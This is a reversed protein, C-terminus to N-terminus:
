DFNTLSFDRARISTCKNIQTMIEVNDQKANKDIYKRSVTLPSNRSGKEGRSKSRRVVVVGDRNIAYEM